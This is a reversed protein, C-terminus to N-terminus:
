NSPANPSNGGQKSGKQGEGAGGGDKNNNQPLLTDQSGIHQSPLLDASSGTIVLEGESVGSKVEAVRDNMLGLKVAVVKTTGDKNLIEVKPTGDEEFIAELPVLLVNKASGADIYAHAQMGPRLKPGGKVRIDVGFQPIGNVDQGMTAVQMVEGEFVEGPLADVTIRVPAGQKVMLVDVDDVQVWMGMDSTNFIYGMWEGPRVTEGPQKEWRAVVGDMPARVEMQGARSLLQMLESEKDRIKDLKEEITRQVDSGALSILPDGKKVVDMEKVHVRTALAEVTSLVQEENVFSEVKANNAFWRVKTDDNDESPIGLSVEVGPTVLGPNKGEVTIWYVFGTTRGNEGGDPVPNPNIDTIYGDYVGDFISFQLALRQGKKVLKFENSYLKANIKFKSDDVVRAVIQGQKIEDGEKVGLGTVRGDIPARLTVGQSPNIQYLNEPSIGTLDALFNKESELEDRLNEIQIELDPAELRAILQGQKVESGEEALYESITYQVSTTSPDRFGGPAQIGGSRSPNLPGTAEVGVSIDGRTVPKTSYVPGKAKVEPPPVLERYAYFGGGLVIVIILAIM